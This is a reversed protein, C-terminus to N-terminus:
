PDQCTCAKRENERKEKMLIEDQSVIRVKEGKEEAVISSGECVPENAVRSSICHGESVDEGKAQHCVLEEEIIEGKSLGLLTSIIM